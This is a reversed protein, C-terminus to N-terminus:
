ADRERGPQNDLREGTWWSHTRESKSQKEEPLDPRHAEGRLFHVGIILFISAIVFPRFSPPFGLLDKPGTLDPQFLYYIGRAAFYAGAATFMLGFVRALINLLKWLSKKLPGSM